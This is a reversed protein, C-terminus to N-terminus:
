DVRNSWESIAFHFLDVHNNVEVPHAINFAIVQALTRVPSYVLDALYANISLKFEAKM